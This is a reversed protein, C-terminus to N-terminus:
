HRKDDKNADKDADRHEDHQRRIDGDSAAKVATPEKNFEPSTSGGASAASASSSSSSAPQHSGGVQTMVPDSVIHGPQDLKGTPRDSSTAAYVGGAGIQDGYGSSNNQGPSVGRDPVGGGGGSRQARWDQFTRDFHDRKASRFTRYDNDYQEHQHRRWDQYDRDHANMQQDRWRTYDNDFEQGQRPHFSYDAPQGFQEVGSAGSNMQTDGYPAGNDSRWTDRGGGQEGGRQGSNQGNNQGANRYDGRSESGYEQGGYGGGFSRENGQYYDGRDAQDGRGGQEGRGYGGRDRDYGSGYNTRDQDFRSGYRDRRWAQDEGQGQGGRPRPAPQGGARGQDGFSRHEGGGGFRRGTQGRDDQRGRNRDQDRDERSGRYDDWDAM